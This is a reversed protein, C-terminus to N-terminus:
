MHVGWRCAMPPPSVRRACDRAACPADICDRLFGTRLSRSLRSLSPILTGKSMIIACCTLQRRTHRMHTHPVTRMYLHRFPLPTSALPPYTHTRTDVPYPHPDGQTLSPPMHVFTLLTLPSSSSPLPSSLLSSSSLYTSPLSFRTSFFVSSPFRSIPSRRPIPAFGHCRVPFLTRTLRALRLRLRWEGNVKEM